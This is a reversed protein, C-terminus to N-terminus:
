PVTVALLDSFQAMILDTASPTHDPSEDSDAAADRIHGGADDNTRSGESNQDPLRQREAIVTGPNSPIQPQLIALRTKLATIEKWNVDDPIM